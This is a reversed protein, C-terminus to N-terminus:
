WIKLFMDLIEAILGILIDFISFFTETDESEIEANNEVNEQQTDDQMPSQDIIDLYETYASSSEFLVQATQTQDVSALLMGADRLLKIDVTDVVGNHNCDAAMYRVAGLSDKTLMNAVLCNVLVADEGDYWGDGNVDGYLLITYEGIIEEGNKLFVKAGTGLRGTNEYSWSYGEDALEVYSELSVDGARIGSIIGTLYDVTVGTKVEFGTAKIIENETNSCTKCTHTKEGDQTATPEKVLAWESYIHEGTPGINVEYYNRCMSCTYRGTGSEICNPSLVVSYRYEHDVIPIEQSELILDCVTCKKAFLGVGSCTPAYETAWEGPSHGLAPIDQTEMTLDCETCRKVMLGNVTCSTQTEVVWYGETHDVMPISESETRYSCVTCEKVRLGTKTCTAETVTRWDGAMHELMPIEETEVTQECVTCIKVSLGTQTCTAEKETKWDGPTHSIRPYLTEKLIGNCDSCIVREYGQGSCDDYEKTVTEQNLHDCTTVSFAQIMFNKGSNESYYSETTYWTDGRLILSQGETSTVGDGAEMPISVGGSAASMELVVSFVSGHELSVAEPLDITHYGVRPLNVTFSQALEGNTPDYSEGQSIDKYIKVNVTVNENHTYTSIATLEERFKATFVNAITASPYSFPAYWYGNANYTYNNDFKDAPQTTYGCFDYITTDYYSIWFYGGGNGWGSGWSNKCLWAGNGEPAKKSNFKSAAFNDDWGVVAIMHNTSAINDDPNCYAVYNSGNKIYNSSESHYYSATVSGNDMIWQKVEDATTCREMSRIIVGSSIDFRDEDTYKPLKSLQSSTTPYNSSVSEGDAIGAWRALAQTADYGDGGLLYASGTSGEGCNPDSTDSSLTNVSFWALHPESFDTSSLSTYGNVISNTELVSTVAFAWCNLSAGQNKVSTVYGKSRSDYSAPLTSTSMTSFSMDPKLRGGTEVVNGYEDYFVRKAYGMSGSQLTEDYDDASAYVLTIPIVSFIVSLLILISICRKM